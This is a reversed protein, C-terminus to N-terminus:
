VTYEFRYAGAALGTLDVTNGTIPAGSGDLDAWAGGADPTGGLSAFLDFATESNCANVTNDVGADAAEVVTVTVTAFVPACPATTITYRFDYNGAALGTLDVTNG